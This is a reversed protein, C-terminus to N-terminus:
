TCSVGRPHLVPWAGPSPEVAYRGFVATFGADPFERRVHGEHGGGHPGLYDTTWTRAKMLAYAQQHLVSWIKTGLGV